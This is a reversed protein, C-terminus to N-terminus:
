YYFINVKIVLLCKYNGQQELARKQHHAARQLKLQQEMKEKIEESTQKITTIKTVTSNSSNVPSAVEYQRAPPLKGTATRTVPM